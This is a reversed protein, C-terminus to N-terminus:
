IKEDHYKYQYLMGLDIGRFLNQLLDRELKLSSFM